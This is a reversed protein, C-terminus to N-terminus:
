RAAAAAATAASIRQVVEFWQRLHRPELFEDRVRERAAAGLRRALEHDQLLRVVSRGFADLDHADVLLGTVGDTVQDQIGGVASAVVPRGKWMAEAVTLGFGEALSKQVVVDARTQLANVIAANEEPDDMPLSALHVRRRVEPPLAERASVVQALVEAAEPDDAVGTPAPGALVLQAGEVAGDQRVFGELVGIPDKLRDWRSVQAVVPDDRAIRADQWIRARRDVRGPTGDERLFVAEHRGGDQLLGATALIAVVADDGLAQNKASFVDISPPIIVARVRDLGDWVFQERSFVYTDAAQVYPRLFDWAGRVVDTPADVGVHCRWAVGIGAARLAPAMGATQPDHLIVVDRPAVLAILEEAAAASVEEYLRRENDGPPEAGAAAHLCNHLNKTLAFFERPGDIVVWRSDVGAGRTYSLLSRLMEAVGGGQATSNACWVVRGSLESRGLTALDQLDRYGADDLVDRFRELPLPPIHVSSIAPM